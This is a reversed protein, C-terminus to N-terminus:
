RTCVFILVGLKNLWSGGIVKEWEDEGILRGVVLSIDPRERGTEPEDITAAGTSQWASGVTAGV